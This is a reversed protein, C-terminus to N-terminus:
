FRQKHNVCSFPNRLSFIAIAYNVKWDLRGTVHHVIYKQVTM